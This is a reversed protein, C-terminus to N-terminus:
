MKQWKEGSEEMQKITRLTDSVPDSAPSTNCTSQKRSYLPKQQRWFETKSEFYDIGSKILDGVHEKHSIKANMLDIDQELRELYEKDPYLEGLLVKNERQTVANSTHGPLGNRIGGYKKTAMRVRNEDSSKEKNKSAFKIESAGLSNIIAEKSKEIGLKFEVLEPRKKYGRHFNVLALEFDGKQYLAEAKQYLGRHFIKDEKLSLNADNLAAEVNGIRLYCKSRAVLARKDAPQLTLAQAYFELAKDPEGNNYLKEGEAILTMFQICFHKFFTTKLIVFFINKDIKEFNRNKACRRGHKYTNPVTSNNLCQFCASKHTMFVIDKSNHFFTRKYARKNTKGVM